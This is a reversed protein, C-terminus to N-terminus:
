KKSLCWLSLGIEDNYNRNISDDSTFIIVEGTVAIQADFLHGGYVKYNIDSFTAHTHVIPEGDNIAINGTLSTLEYIGFYNKKKYEKSDLIYFGIEPDQIAGIGNIWAGKIELEKAIKKLSKNIFEGKSLSLYIKNNNKYYKLRGM